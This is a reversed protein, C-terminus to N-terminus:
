RRRATWQSDDTRCCHLKPHLRRKKEHKTSRITLRVSPLKVLSELKILVGPILKVINRVAFCFLVSLQVSSTAPALVCGDPSSCMVHGFSFSCHDVHFMFYGKRKFILLLAPTNGADRAYRRKFAPGFRAILGISSICCRALWM